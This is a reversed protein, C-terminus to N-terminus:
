HNPTEALDSPNSPAALDVALTTPRRVEGAGIQTVLGCARCFSFSPLRKKSTSLIPEILTTTGSSSCINCQNSIINKEYTVKKRSMVVGQAVGLAWRNANTAHPPTVKAKLYALGGCTLQVRHEAANSM